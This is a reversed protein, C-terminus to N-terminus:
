DCTWLKTSPDCFCSGHFGDLWICGVNEGLLSCTAGDLNDCSPAAQAAKPVSTLSAVLALAALALRISIKM